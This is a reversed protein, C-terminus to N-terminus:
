KKAAMENLAKAFTGTAFSKGEEGIYIDTSDNAEGEASRTRWRWAWDDYYSDYRYDDWRWSSNSYLDFVYDRNDWDYMTGHFHSYSISYDRWDIRVDNWTRDDYYIYINGNRIEWRFSSYARNRRDRYDYDCEEGRGHTAEGYRDYYDAEFRWVTRYDGDRFAEGWRNVYYTRLDGEWDVGTLRRAIEQDTECSTMTFGALVMMMAYFFYKKM